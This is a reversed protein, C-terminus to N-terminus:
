SDTLLIVWLREGKFKGYETSDKSAQYLVDAMNGRLIEVEKVFANAASEKDVPFAAWTKNEADIFEIGQDGVTHALLENWVGMAKTVNVGKGAVDVQQGTTRVTPAREVISVTHGNRALFLALSPGAIGSGAIM